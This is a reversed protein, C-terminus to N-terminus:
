PNKPTPQVNHRRHFLKRQVDPWFEDAVGGLSGYLLAIGTRSMTLGFGRDGAPYYVNALGGSSVAGLTNEFSFSRGGADTHCVIEQRLSYLFRRGFGGEGLRFYRPDEKLVSAWFFNSWFGSSVEDAFAAGYRKGYGQAGQGYGPFEDQAQSLGAQLGVLGFEVPDFASKRFLRFKGARTLPPADQRDTVAFQPVVGLLRQSQEKKELEREQDSKTKDTPNAQPPPTPQSPAVQAFSRVVGLLLVVGLALSKM